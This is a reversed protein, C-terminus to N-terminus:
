TSFTICLQSCCDTLILPKFMTPDTVKKVSEPPVKQQNDGAKAICSSFCRHCRIESQSEYIPQCTWTDWQDNTAPLETIERTVLENSPSHGFPNRLPCETPPSLARIRYKHSFLETLFVRFLLSWDADTIAAHTEDSISSRCVRHIKASRHDLLLCRCRIM